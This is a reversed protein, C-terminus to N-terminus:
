STPIRFFYGLNLLSSAFCSSFQHFVPLLDRVMRCRIQIGSSYCNGCPEPILFSLEISETCFSPNGTGARFILFCGTPSILSRVSLPVLAAIQWKDLYCIFLSSCGIPIHCVSGGTEISGHLFVVLWLSLSVALFWSASLLLSLLIPALNCKRWNKYRIVCGLFLLLFVPLSCLAVSIIAAPISKIKQIIFYSTTRAFSSFYM